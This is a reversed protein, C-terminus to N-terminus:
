VQDLNGGDSYILRITHNIYGASLSIGAPLRSMVRIPKEHLNDATLGNNVVPGNVAVLHLLPKHFEACFLHVAM